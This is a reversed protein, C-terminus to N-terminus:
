KIKKPKLYSTFLNVIAPEKSSITEKLEIQFLWSILKHGIIPHITVSITKKTQKKRMITKHNLNIFILVLYIILHLCIFM